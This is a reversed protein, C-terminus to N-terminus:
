LAYHARAASWRKSNNLRAEEYMDYLRFLIDDRITRAPRRSTTAWRRRRAYPFVARIATGLSFISETNTNQQKWVQGLVQVLDLNIKMLTADKKAPETLREKDRRKAISVLGSRQSAKRNLVKAFVVTFDRLYPM